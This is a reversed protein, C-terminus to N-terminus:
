YANNFQMSDGVFTTFEEPIKVYTSRSITFDWGQRHMFKSSSKDYIKYDLKSSTKYKPNNSAHNIIGVNKELNIVKVNDSIFNDPICVDNNLFCLWPNSTM